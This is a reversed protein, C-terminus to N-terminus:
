LGFVPTSRLCLSHTCSPLHSYASSTSTSFSLFPSRPRLSGARREDHRTWALLQNIWNLWRCLTGEEKQNLIEKKIKYNNYKKNSKRSVDCGKRYLKAHNMWYGDYIHLMVVFHIHIM